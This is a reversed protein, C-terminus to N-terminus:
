AEKGDQLYIAGLLRETNRMSKIMWGSKDLFVPNAFYSYKQLNSSM